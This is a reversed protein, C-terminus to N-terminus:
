KFRGLAWLGLGIADMAHQSAHDVVDGNQHLIGRIRRHCVDKPLQGKWKSPEVLEVGHQEHRLAHIYMAGCLMALKVLDGTSATTYGGYGRMFVPSEIYVQGIYGDRPTLAFLKEYSIMIQMVKHSWFRGRGYLTGFRVVRASDSELMAYGTGSSGPDVALILM